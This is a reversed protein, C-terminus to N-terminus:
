QLQENGEGGHQYRALVPVLIDVAADFDFSEIAEYLADYTTSFVHRLLDEHEEFVNMAFADGNQLLERLRVCVVRVRAPDPADSAQAQVAEFPIARAIEAIASSLTVALRELADSVVSQERRDRLARELERACPEVQMAGIAAATSKVTHAIREANSRDGNKLAERIKEAAGQQEKVFRRLLALYAKEKYLVRELGLKLDIGPIGKLVLDSVPMTAPVLKVDGADHSSAPLWRKLTEQLRQPHIPKAIFDNMGVEACADRDQQMANATM